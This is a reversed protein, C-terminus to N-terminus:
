KMKKLSKASYVTGLVGFLSGVRILWRSTLGVPTMVYVVALVAIGPLVVFVNLKGMLSAVTSPKKTSKESTTTNSEMSILAYPVSSSISWPLGLLMIIFSTMLTQNSGIFSFSGLLISLMAIGSVYTYGIHMKGFYPVFTRSSIMVVVSNIALWLNAFRNGDYTNNYPILFCVIIILITYM